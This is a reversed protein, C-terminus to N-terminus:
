LCTHNKSYLDQVLCLLIYVASLGVIWFTLIDQVTIPKNLWSEVKSM